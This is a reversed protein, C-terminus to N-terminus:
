VNAEVPKAPKNKSAARKKSRGFIQRWSWTGLNDNAKVFPDGFVWAQLQSLRTYKMPLGM